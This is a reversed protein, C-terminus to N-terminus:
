PAEYVHFVLAGAHLMFSGIYTGPDDPMVHGTGYIYITRERKKPASPDVEAWICVTDGQAAVSRIKAGFPMSVQQKDAMQLPYKWITKSM